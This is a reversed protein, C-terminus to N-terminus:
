TSAFPMSVSAPQCCAGSVAASLSAGNGHSWDREFGVRTRREFRREAEVQRRHAHVGVLAGRCRGVREVGPRERNALMDHEAGSFKRRM